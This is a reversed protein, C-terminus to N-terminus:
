EEGFYVPSQPTQPREALDEDYPQEVGFDDDEMEKGDVSEAEMQRRLVERPDEPIPANEFIDDDGVRRRLEERDGVLREFDVDLEQLEVEIEEIEQIVRDLDDEILQRQIPLLTMGELRVRNDRVRELLRLREGLRTNIEDELDAIEDDLSAADRLLEGIESSRDTLITRVGGKLGSGRLGAEADDFYTEPEPNEALASLLRRYAPTFEGVAPREVAFPPALGLAEMGSVLSAPEAVPRRVMRLMSPGRVPRPPFRRALAPSKPPYPVIVEDFDGEKFWQTLDRTVDRSAENQATVAGLTIGQQDRVARLRANKESRSLSADRLIADEQQFLREALDSAGRSAKRFMERRMVQKQEERGSGIMPIDVEQMEGSGIMPQATHTMPDNTEPPDVNDDDDDRRRSSPESVNLERLRDVIRFRQQQLTTLRQRLETEEDLLNEEEEELERTHNLIGGAEQGLAELEADIQEERAPQTNPDNWEDMLDRRRNIFEQHQANFDELETQIEEQRALNDRIFVLVQGIEADMRRLEEKARAIDDEIAGGQINKLFQARRRTRGIHRKPHKLVDEAYELPTEGKRLAQKTFAGKKMGKVAEQIWKVKKKGGTVDKLEKVQESAEKKREGETGSRLIRVLKTHEDVFDPTPLCVKKPPMQKEAPDKRAESCVM